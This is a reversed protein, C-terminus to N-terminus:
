NSLNRVALYDVHGDFYLTNQGAGTESKHPHPPQFLPSVISWLPSSESMNRITSREALGRWGSDPPIDLTNCWAWSIREMKDPEHVPPKLLYKAPKANFAYSNGWLESMEWLDPCHFIGSEGEIFDDNVLTAELGFQEPIMKRRQRENEWGSGWKWDPSVRFNNSGRTVTITSEDEFIIQEDGELEAPKKKELSYGGLDNIPHPFRGKHLDRYMITLLGIQRLHNTCQVYRASARASQVAPLLLAILTGIIAIVVLLEVLTFGYCCDRRAAARSLLPKM